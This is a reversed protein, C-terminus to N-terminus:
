SRGQPPPLSPIILKHRSDRNDFSISSEGMRAWCHEFMGEFVALLDIDAATETAEHISHYFLDAFVYDNHPPLKWRCFSIYCSTFPKTVRIGVFVPLFPYHKVEVQITRLNAKRREGIAAFMKKHNDLNAKLLNRGEEIKPVSAVSTDPETAVLLLRVYVHSAECNEIYDNLYEKMNVYHMAIIDLHLEKDKLIRKKKVFIDEAVEYLKLLHGRVAKHVFEDLATVQKSVDQVRSILSYAVATGFLVIIVPTDGFWRGVFHGISAIVFLALNINPQNKSIWDKADDLRNRTAKAIDSERSRVM